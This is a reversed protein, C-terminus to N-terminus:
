RYTVVHRHTEANQFMDWTVDLDHQRASRLDIVFVMDGIWQSATIALSSELASPMELLVMEHKRPLAEVMARADEDRMRVSGEGNGLDLRVADIGVEGLAAMLAAAVDGPPNHGGIVTLTVFRPKDVNPRALLASMVVRASPLLASNVEGTARRRGRRPSSFAALAHKGVTREVQGVTGVRPDRAEALVFIAAGGGAGLVLGLALIQPVPLGIPASPLVAPDVVATLDRTVGPTALTTEQALLQQYQNLLLGREQAQAPATTRALAEEVGQIQERVTTLQADVVAATDAKRQEVYTTVLANAINQAREASDTTATVDVLDSGTVQTLVVADAISQRSEGPLREAASAALAASELLRLQGGVYREPDGIFPGQQPTTVANPDLLLTATARYETSSSLQLALVALALGLLASLAVAAKRWRLAVVLNHLEM